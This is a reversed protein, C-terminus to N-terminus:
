LAILYVFGDQTWIYTIDTCWVENHHKPNFLEDLIYYLENSFISDRTTATWPKVWQAKIDTVCM